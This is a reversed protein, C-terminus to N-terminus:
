TASFMFRMQASMLRPVNQSLMQVGVVWVPRWMLREGTWMSSRMTRSPLFWTKEYWFASSMRSHTVSAM